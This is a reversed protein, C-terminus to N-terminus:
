QAPVFEHVWVEVAPHVPFERDLFDMIERMGAAIAQQRDAPDLEPPLEPVFGLVGSFILEAPLRSRRHKKIRTLEYVPGGSEFVVRDGRRGARRLSLFGRSDGAQIRARQVPSVSVVVRHAPPAATGEQM